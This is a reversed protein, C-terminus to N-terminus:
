RAGMTVLTLAEARADTNEKFIGRIASTRTLCGHAYVGRTTMCTHEAELIVMVGRPQLVRDIADAVQHGIREQVQLRCAYGTLCRSLKSLGVVRDGPLYVIWGRGIFPAMHHECTSSFPIPGVCVLADHAGQEALDDDTFVRELHLAPDEAYGAGWAQKWAKLVRKPTEEVGARAPDDGSWEILTRVADLAKDSNTM